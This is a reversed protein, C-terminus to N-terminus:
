HYTATVDNVVPSVQANTTSLTLRYQLYRGAQVGPSMGSAAVDSWGTWTTGDSSSRASVTLAAGGPLNVTWSLSDWSVQRGADIACSIYTGGAVYPPLQNMQDVVLPPTTGQGNHSLYLFLAPETAVTHQAVLTGDL